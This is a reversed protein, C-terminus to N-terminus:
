WLPCTGSVNLLWPDICAPHYKHSCPLIRIDDGRTFDETCISCGLEGSGATQGDGSHFSRAHTDPGMDPEVTADRHSSSRPESRGSSCMGAATVESSIKANANATATGNGLEIDQSGPKVPEPDGFKVIPLTELIARALRRAGYQRQRGPLGNRSGYREPHRYAGVVRKASVILILLLLMMGLLGYVIFSVLSSHGDGDGEAIGGNTGNNNPTGSAAITASSVTSSRALDDRTPIASTNQTM